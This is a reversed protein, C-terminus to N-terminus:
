LSVESIIEMVGSIVTAYPTSKEFFIVVDSDGYRVIVAKFSSFKLRASEYEECLEAILATSIVAMDNFDKKEEVHIVEGDELIYCAFVNEMAAVDNALKYAILEDM